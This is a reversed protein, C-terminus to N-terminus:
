RKKLKKRIKRAQKKREATNKNKIEAFFDIDHTAPMQFSLKTRGDHNTVAFDGSTIIDMGILVDGGIIDQPAERVPIGMIGVHNPLFINVIYENVKELIGSIGRIEKKGMPNLQLKRAVEPNVLTGSAGTDWIATGEFQPNPDFQNKKYPSIGIPTKLVRTRKGYQTTFALNPLSRIPIPPGAM